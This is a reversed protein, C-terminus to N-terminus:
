KTAALVPKWQDALKRTRAADEASLRAALAETRREANKEDQKAALTSWFYAQAPSAPVGQGRAFMESVKEQAKAMGQDAAESAM